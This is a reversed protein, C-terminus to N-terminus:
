MARLCTFQRANPNLFFGYGAGSVPDRRCQVSAIGWPSADGVEVDVALTVDSYAGPIVSPVQQEQPDVVIVLVELPIDVDEAAAPPGVRDARDIRDVTVHVRDDASRVSRVGLDFTVRDARVFVTGGIAGERPIARDPPANAGDTVVDEAAQAIAAEEAETPRRRYVHRRGGDRDPLM